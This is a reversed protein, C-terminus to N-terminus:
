RGYDIDEVHVAFRCVASNRIPNRTSEEYVAMMLEPTCCPFDHTFGWAFATMFFGHGVVLPYEAPHNSIREHFFVVRSWFAEFSEANPNQEQPDCRQWYADVLPKREEPTTEQPLNFYVFEHVDWTEVPVDSFELILPEASQRARLMRSVVLLDPRERIGAVANKAEQWGQETLPISEPAVSRLGANSASQGHRLLTLRKIM